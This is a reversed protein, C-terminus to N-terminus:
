RDLAVRQSLPHWSLTNDYVQTKCERFGMQKAKRKERERERAREGKQRERAEVPIDSSCSQGCFLQQEAFRFQLGEKSSCLTFM